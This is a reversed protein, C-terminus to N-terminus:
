MILPHPPFPKEWVSACMVRLICLKASLERNQISYIDTHIQTHIPWKCTSANTHSTWVLVPHTHLETHTRNTYVHRLPCGGTRGHLGYIYVLPSCVPRPIGNAGDATQRWIHVDFAQTHTQTHTHTHTYVNASLYNHTHIPEVLSLMTFWLLLTLLLLLLRPPSAALPASRTHSGSLTVRGGGGGGYVVLWHLEAWDSMFSIPLPPLLPPPPSVLLLLLLSLLRLCRSHSVSLVLSFCPLLSLHLHLLLFLCICLSCLRSSLPFIPLFSSICTTLVVCTFVMCSKPVITCCYLPSCLVSVCIIVCVIFWLVCVCLYLVETAMSQSASHELLFRVVELHNEQAAM